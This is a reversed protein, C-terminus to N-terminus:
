ALSLRIGLRVSCAMRDCRNNGILIQRPQPQNGNIARGFNLANTQIWVRQCVWPVCRPSMIIQFGTEDTIQKLWIVPVDHHLDQFAAITVCEHLHRVVFKAV